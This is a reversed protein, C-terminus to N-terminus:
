EGLVENRPKKLHKNQLALVAVAAQQKTHRKNYTIASDSTENWGMIYSRAKAEREPSVGQADMALSFSYNWHHRLAHAHIGSGEVILAISSMWKQFASISLPRGQTPGEKHTVFLYGHTRAVSLKNRYRLVYDHIPDMLEPIIPITRQLTKAVPQNTRVDGRSDPRRLVRLTGRAFDFDSVKLNLLEGRRMGTLRLITFMLLHRLQVEYGKSPNLESGPKLAEAVFDVVAEDLYREDKDTASRGPKGPRNAKIKGVMLKSSKESQGPPRLRDALFGLYNAVTTLRFYHSSAGVTRPRKRIRVVKKDRGPSPLARQLFDSVDRIQEDSLLKGHSFQLEWDIGISEQWAYLSKIANLANLISNAALSRSRLSWTVFLTPYYLPMGSEDVLVATREGNEAVFRRMSIGM